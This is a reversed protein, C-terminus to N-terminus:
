YNHKKRELFASLGEKGEKSARVNAIIDATYDIVGENIPQYALNLLM